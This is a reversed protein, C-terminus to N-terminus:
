RLTIRLGVAGTVGRLEQDLTGRGGTFRYGVGADVSVAPSLAFAFRLEPEAVVLDTEYRVRVNGSGDDVFARDDDRRGRGLRNASVTEFVSGRGIGLLGRAEVRFDDFRILPAGTLLGAYWLRVDERPDALVYVAGGLLVTDEILKGAYGGALVGTTDHLETVKVDPAFVLASSIPRLVLPGGTTPQQTQDTSQARVPAAVLLAVGLAVGAFTSRAFSDTKM